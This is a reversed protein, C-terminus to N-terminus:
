IHHILFGLFNMTIHATICPIISNRRLAIIAFVVGIFFTLIVYYIGSFWHWLGFSISSYLIGRREGWLQMIRRLTYGRWIIEEFVGGGVVGALFWGIITPFFRKDSVYVKYDTIEFFAEFVLISILCLILGIGINKFFNEGRLGLEYLSSKEKKLFFLVLLFFSLQISFIFWGCWPIFFEEITQRSKFVDPYIIFLLSFGLFQVLPAALIIFIRVKRSMERENINEYNYREGL